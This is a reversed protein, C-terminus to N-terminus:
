KVCIGDFILKTCRTSVADISHREEDFWEVTRNLAGLLFQRLLRIQIDKRLQGGDQADALLAEWYKAYARRLPQHSERIELPLQSYVRVNASIFESEGLLVSLHAHVAASIKALHNGDGEVAIVAGRVAGNVEDMGRELIAAIIEDKSSFHYYLSGAKMGNAAAIDRLTSATYGRNRILSAAAKLIEERTHESKSKRFGAEELPKARPKRLKLTEVSPGTSIGDLIIKRCSDVLAEVSHKEVDFWEVTWNLAGLLFQRLLRIRIDARLQGAMQADRLMTEWLKAYARRLPRQRNRIAEPLQGYIRINAATFESRTLLLNLHAEIAAGIRDRHNVDKGSRGIVAQVGDHIDRLGKDLIEDLINDKSTFHNYISGSKMGTGEAIERLTAAEYGQERFLRASVTLIRDRSSAFKISASM